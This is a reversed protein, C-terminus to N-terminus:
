RGTFVPRNMKNMLVLCCSIILLHKLIILMSQMLYLNPDSDGLRYVQGPDMIIEIPQAKGVRILAPEYVSVISDWTKQDTIGTVPLAYKRQFATVAQITQQGYIGDPVVPPLTADDEGIVRLMTQLSRIPQSIYSEFPRM